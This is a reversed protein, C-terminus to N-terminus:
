LGPDIYLNPSTELERMKIAKDDFLKTVKNLLDEKILSKNEIQAQTVQFMQENKIKYLLYFSFIILLVAIGFFIRILMLWHRHPNIVSLIHKGESSKNGITFNIKDM